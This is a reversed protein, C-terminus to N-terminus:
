REGALLRALTGARLGSCIAAPIGAATAMEAAVVKSRMGGSGLASTTHGIQLSEYDTVEDVLRAGAQRVEAM